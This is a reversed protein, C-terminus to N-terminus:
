VTRYFADPLHIFTFLLLAAGRKRQKVITYQFYLSCPLQKILKDKLNFHM